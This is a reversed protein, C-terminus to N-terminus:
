MSNEKICAMCIESTSRRWHHSGSSSRTWPIRLAISFQLLITGPKHHM